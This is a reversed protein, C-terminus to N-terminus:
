DNQPIAQDITILIHCRDYFDDDTSPTRPSMDEGRDGYRIGDPFLHRARFDQEDSGPAPHLHIQYGLRAVANLAQPDASELAGQADFVKKERQLQRVTQESGATDQPLEARVHGNPHPAKCAARQQFHRHAHPYRRHNLLLIRVGSSGIADQRALHLLYTHGVGIHLTIEGGILQHHGPVRYPAGQKGM